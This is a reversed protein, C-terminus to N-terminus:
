FRSSNVLCSRRGSSGGYRDRHDGHSMPLSPHHRDGTAGVRRLALLYEVRLKARSRALRVRTTGESGGAPTLAAVPMEDVEHAVLRLRESDPLRALAVAMAAQDESRLAAEDPEVPYSVNLMRSASASRRAATRGYSAAANRATVVGYPVIMEQALRGRARVLRELADQVLDDVAAKDPVRAVIVRRLVPEVAWM